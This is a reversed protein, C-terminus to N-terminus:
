GEEAKILLLFLVRLMMFIESSMQDFTGYESPKRLKM